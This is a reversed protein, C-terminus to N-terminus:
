RLGHPSETRLQPGGSSGLLRVEGGEGRGFVAGLGRLLLKLGNDILVRMGAGGVHGVIEEADGCGVQAVIGGGLAIKLVNGGRAVTFNSGDGLIRECGKVARRAGFYVIILWAMGGAWAALAAMWWAAGALRAAASALQAAAPTLVALLGVIAWPVYRSIRM